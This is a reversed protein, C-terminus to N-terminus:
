SFDSNKCTVRRTMILLRQECCTLVHVCFDLDALEAQSVQNYRPVPMATGNLKADVRTKNSAAVVWESRRFVVELNL